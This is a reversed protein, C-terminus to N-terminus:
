MSMMRWLLPNQALDAAEPLTLHHHRLDQQVISLWTIRPRRPQRRWDAPSSTLLIRKADANDDMHAIYGFLTLRRPQIIATLEPQKTLRRVYDNWVFQYWKIGLLMHLCWQDLAGIRRADTQSIGWCDSGYPRCSYEYSPSAMLHVHQVAEVESLYRATVELYSKRPEAHHCCM